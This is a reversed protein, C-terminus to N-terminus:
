GTFSPLASSAGGAAASAGGSAAPAAAAAAVVIGTCVLDPFNKAVGNWYVLIQGSEFLTASFTYSATGATLNTTGPLSAPGDTSFLFDLTDGGLGVGSPNGFSDVFSITFNFPVGATASAPTSCNIDNVSAAGSVTVSRTEPAPITTNTDADAGDATLATATVSGTGVATMQVTFTAVGLVATAPNTTTVTGGVVALQVSGDFQTDTTGDPNHAAVTVTTSGGATTVTAPNVDVHLQTAVATATGGFAIMSAGLSLAAVMLMIIPRNRRKERGRLGLM